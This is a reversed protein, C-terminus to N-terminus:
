VLEPMEPSMGRRPAALNEAFPDTIFSADCGCLRGVFGVFTDDEERKPRQHFSWYLAPPQQEFNSTYARLTANYRKVRHKEQIRNSSTDSPDHDFVRANGMSVCVKSYISPSIMLCKWGIGIAFGPLLQCPETNDGIITKLALFRLVEDTWKSLFVSQVEDNLDLIEPEADHRDSLIHIEKVLNRHLIEMGGTSNLAKKARVVLDLGKNMEEPTEDSFALDLKENTDYSTRMGPMIFLNIV